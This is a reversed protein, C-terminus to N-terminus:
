ISMFGSYCTTLSFGTTALYPTTRPLVLYITWLLLRSNLPSSWCVKKSQNYTIILLLQTMGIVTWLTSLNVPRLKQPYAIHFYRVLALANELDSAPQWTSYNYGIWCVLYKLQRWVLKSNHIKEVEWKLDKNVIVPPPLPQVQGIFLDQTVPELLSIYFILLM